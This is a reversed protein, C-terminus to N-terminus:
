RIRIHLPLNATGDLAIRKSTGRALNTTKTMRHQQDASRRTAPRDQGDAADASARLTKLLNRPSSLDRKFKLTKGEPQLLPHDIPDLM